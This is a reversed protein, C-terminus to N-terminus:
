RAYHATLNTNACWQAYLTEPGVLRAETNTAVAVGSGDAKTNWGKIHYDSLTFTNARLADDDDSTVTQNDM